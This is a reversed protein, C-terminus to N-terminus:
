TLRVLVDIAFGCSRLLAILEGHPLQFGVSADDPWEMRHMGVYPRLLREGTPEGLDDPICLMHLPANVLFVLRGGPRV